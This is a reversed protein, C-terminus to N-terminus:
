FDAKARFGLVVATDIREVAPKLIQLDPTLHLWPTAAINYFLEAGQGDGVAGLLAQARSGVQDSTKGYYWGIGVRDAERGPIP